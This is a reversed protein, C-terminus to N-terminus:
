TANLEWVQVEHKNAKLTTYNTERLINPFTRAHVKICKTKRSSRRHLHGQSRRSNVMKPSVATGNPPRAATRFRRVLGSQFYRRPDLRRNHDATKFVGFSTASTERNERSENQPRTRRGLRLIFGRIPSKLPFVQRKM